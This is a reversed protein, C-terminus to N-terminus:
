FINNFYLSILNASIGIGVKSQRQYKIVLVILKPRTLQGGM